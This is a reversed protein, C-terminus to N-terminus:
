GSEPRLEEEEFNSRDDKLKWNNMEQSRGRRVSVILYSYWPWAHELDYQSPVAPADPHSHFFGLIGKGSGQLERELRFLFAPDILYRNALSDKRQNEAPVCELVKKVGDPRCEGVLIGCCELPYAAEALARIRERHKEGLELM